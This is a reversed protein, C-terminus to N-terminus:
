GLCLILNPHRAKCEERLAEVSKKYYEKNEKLRFFSFKNLPPQTKIVNTIYVEDRRIGCDGLLRDLLDGSKGCFPRGEKIETEGPCEGIIVMNCRTPGYGDVRKGYLEEESKPPCSETSGATSLKIRAM